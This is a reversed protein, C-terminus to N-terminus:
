DEKKTGLEKVKECLKLVCWIAIIIIAIKIIM